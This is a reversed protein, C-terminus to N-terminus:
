RAPQTTSTPEIELTFNQDVDLLDRDYLASYTRVRVTRGDPAFEMLRLYGEGGLPRFQYNSLIQHVRQGADNRDVRYGTGDGLVHGNLTFVFRHKRVLKDWLEQGDNVPAPTRYAHPNWPQKPGRDDYRTDDNFMFAHTVLIGDRDAHESMVKNAWDVAVDRPAWELCMVIWKRGGAEFRHFTNELKGEEMAGGFTPQEAREELSFYDNLRTDRTSADGGPGHDHNGTVVAWQVGADTLIKMAAAAREWEVPTNRDTIDGLGLTFRIKRKERNAAIWHTQAVHLGPYSLSYIQTDPLIALTWSGPVFDASPRAAPAAPAAPATTLQAAATSAFALGCAFLGLSFAHRSM